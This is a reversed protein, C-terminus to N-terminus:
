RSVIPYLRKQLSIFTLYGILNHVKYSFTESKYRYSASAARVDTGTSWRETLNLGPNM